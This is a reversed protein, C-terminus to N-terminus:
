AKNMAIRRVGPTLILVISSLIIFGAAGAMGVHLTFISELAGILPASIMGGVSAALSLSTTALMTNEPTAECGVNLCGTFMAGFILGALLTAACMLIANGFMVGVLVVAGTLLGAFCLYSETKIPLLPVSFRSVMIGLWLLSLAMEGMTGGIVVNIYRSIWTAIGNSFVSHLMLAILLGPLTGRTLKEKILKATLKEDRAAPIVESNNKSEKGRPFGFIYILLAIVGLGAPFLYLNNWAIEKASFGSLVSAYIMPVMISSASFTTHLVGMMKAAQKGQYLDAMNSSLLTDMYGTGMGLIVSVVLFMVFSSASCRLLVLSVVCVSVALLLLKKKPARGMVFLSSLLAIIGGMSIATASYGQAADTLHFHDIIYSLLVGIINNFSSLFVMMILLAAAFRKRQSITM